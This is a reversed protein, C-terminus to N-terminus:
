YGTVESRPVDNREKDEIQRLWRMCKIAYARDIPKHQQAKSEIAAIEERLTAADLM